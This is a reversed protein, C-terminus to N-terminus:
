IIYYNVISYEATENCVKRKRTIGWEAVRTRNLMITFVKRKNMEQLCRENEDKVKSEHEM